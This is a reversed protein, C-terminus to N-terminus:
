DELEEPGYIRINEFQTEFKVYYIENGRLVWATTGTGTIAVVEDRDDEEAFATAPEMLPRVLNAFLLIAIVVMLIQTLRSSSM